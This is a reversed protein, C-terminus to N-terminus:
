TDGFDLIGREELKWEEGSPQISVRAPKKLTFERNDEPQYRQCDFLSQATNINFPNIRLNEKPLLWYTEDKAGIVLYNGNRAESLLINDKNFISSVNDQIISVKLAKKSLLNPTNNYAEILESESLDVWGLDTELAGTIQVSGKLFKATEESSLLQEILKLSPEFKEIFENFKSIETIELHSPLNQEYLNNKNKVRKSTQLTKYFSAIMSILALILALISVLKWKSQSHSLDGIVQQSLYKIETRLTNLQAKLYKNNNQELKKREEQSKDLQSKLTDIEEKLQNREEQLAKVRNDLAKFEPNSSLPPPTPTSPELTTTSSPSSTPDPLQAQAIEANTLLGPMLLLILLDKFIKVKGMQKGMKNAKGFRSLITGVVALWFQGLAKHYATTPLVSRSTM